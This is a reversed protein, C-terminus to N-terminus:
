AGASDFRAGGREGRISLMIALAIWGILPLVILFFWMGSRDTDHLRRWTVALMPLLTVLSFVLVIVDPLDQVVRTDIPRWDGTVLGNIIQVVIPFLVVVLMPWWFESRSARGRFNAYNQVFRRLAVLAPAGVYPRTLPPETLRNPRPTAESTM